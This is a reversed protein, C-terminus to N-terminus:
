KKDESKGEKKEEAKPESKKEESKAGEDKKAEEKGAEPKPTEEKEKRKPKWAQVKKGQIIQKNVLLNYVTPSIEVKKNIWELLREKNKLHFNKTVPNYEGFVETAKKVASRYKEALVIRFDPNNKSGTRQLRIILM